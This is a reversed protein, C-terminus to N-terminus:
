LSSTPGPGPHSAGAADAVAARPLYISFTAGTGAASDVYVGGGSQKVIGYVTSLGLGTGKGQEKTTFFPEFIQQQLEAPVGPGTDAVTLVVYDGVHLGLHERAEDQGVARNETAIRVVGGDPMADRANVCLNMVVQELQGPDARVTWLNPVLVVDLRVDSGLLRTILSQMGSVIEGVDLIRQQLVQKRSFALLQRTLMAAREASRRIEVVDHRRPDDAGFQDILLDTYGFIATLVNNFDHAIGGALRGIAEMKQAQRLRDQTATLAQEALKRQTVDRHNGVISWVGPTELHNVIIVEGFRVSGDRHIFRYELSRARGPEEIARAIAARIAPVDDPHAFSDVRRGVFDEPSYGTASAVARSVYTCVLDTDILTITEHSHDVLARFRAERESLQRRFQARECAYRLARVLLQTDITGKVLYDQAGAQMAAVATAEDDRGTLVLIPVGAAAAQMQELTDLGASDPLGLDLVVADFPGARVSRVADNLTRAREVAISVDPALGLETRLLTAFDDDDEVLLANLREAPM